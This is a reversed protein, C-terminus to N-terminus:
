PVISPRVTNMKEWSKVTKPPLRPSTIASFIHLTISRAAWTPAGTIPMLSEPPARIWSPTTESPRYPSIKRRLTRADPTIGCILMIMPEQAPPWTYEGATVSKVTMTSPVELMNM